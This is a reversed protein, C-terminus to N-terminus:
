IVYIDVPGGEFEAKGLLPIELYNLRYKGSLDRRGGYGKGSYLMGTQFSFPGTLEANVEAGLALGALAGRQDDTPIKGSGFRVGSVNLGIKPLISIQAFTTGICLVAFLLTFIGKKM